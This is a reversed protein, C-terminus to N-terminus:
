HSSFVQKIALASQNRLTRLANLQEVTLYNGAEHHGGYILGIEVQNIIIPLIVFSPSYINGSFWDPQSTALEPDNMDHIYLDKNKFLSINFVDGAEPNPM